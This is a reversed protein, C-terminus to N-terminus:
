PASALASLGATQTPMWLQVLEATVTDCNAAGARRRDAAHAGGRGRACRQWSERALSTATSRGVGPIDRFPRVPAPASADGRAAYLVLLDRILLPMSWGDLLIHHNTVLLRQDDPATRVLM